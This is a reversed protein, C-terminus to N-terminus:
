EPCKLFINREFCHAWLISSQTDLKGLGASILWPSPLVWRAGRLRNRDKYLSAVIMHLFLDAHKALCPPAYKNVPPRKNQCQCICKNPSTTPLPSFLSDFVLLDPFPWFKLLSVTLLHWSYNMTQINWMWHVVQECGTSKVRPRKFMMINDFRQPLDKWELIM